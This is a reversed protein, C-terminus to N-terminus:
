AAVVEPMSALEKRLRATEAEAAAIKATLLDRRAQMTRPDATGYYRTRSAVTVILRRIENVDMVTM